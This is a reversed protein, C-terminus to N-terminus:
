ARASVQLVVQFSPVANKRRSPLSRDVCNQQDVYIDPDRSKSDPDEDVAKSCDITRRALNRSQGYVCELDVAREHKARHPVLPTAGDVGGQDKKRV